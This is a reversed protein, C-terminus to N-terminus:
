SVSCFSHFAFFFSFSFPPTLTTLVRFDMLFSVMRPLHYLV